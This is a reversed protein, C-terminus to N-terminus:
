AAKKALLIGVFSFYFYIGIKAYQPKVRAFYPHFTDFFINKKFNPRAM